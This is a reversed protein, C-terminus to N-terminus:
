DRDESKNKNRGGRSRKPKDRPKEESVAKSKGKEDAKGKGKGEGKGTSVKEEKPPSFAQFAAVAQALSEYMALQEKLKAVEKELPDTKKTEGAGGAFSAIMQCLALCYDTDTDELTDFISKTMPLHGFTVQPDNSWEKLLSRPIHAKNLLLRGFPDRDARYGLWNAREAFAEFPSASAHVANDGTNPESALGLDKWKALVAGRCSDAPAESPDTPGLVKGRFDAWSLSSAEWEVLYYYISAGPKVFKSRMSMFFGNFVYIKDNGCPLEGCYFGGGFKILKNDKKATSWLKDMAEADVELKECGDKANFVQNEKVADEWSVGFKDKFKEKPVNLETPKKLTAKAAIAYYHKDILMRKDIEEAEISGEKKIEMDKAKLTEAVLDKVKDTVAHPKIFIFAHNKVM